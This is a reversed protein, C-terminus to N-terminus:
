RTLEQHLEQSFSFLDQQEEETPEESGTGFFELTVIMQDAVGKPDSADLEVEGFETTWDNFEQRERSTLLGALTGMTGDAQAKCNTTFVEGSRFVSLMDCFGAIGGERKWILALSAPQVRDGDESTHYEYASGDAELMIIRGPTVVQACMVGEMTVGLCADSFEVSENSIVTIDSEQLGLNAALQKIVIEEAPGVTATEPTAEQSTPPETPANTVEPAEETPAIETPAAEEPACATILLIFLLSIALIRRM